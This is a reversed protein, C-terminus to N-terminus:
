PNYARDVFLLSLSPPIIELLSTCVRARVHGLYTDAHLDITTTVAFGRAGARLYRWFPLLLDEGRHISPLLSNQHFKVPHLPNLLPENRIPQILFQNASKIPNAVLYNRIESM